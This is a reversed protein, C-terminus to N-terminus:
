GKKKVLIPVYKMMIGSHYDESFEFFFHFQYNFDDNQVHM